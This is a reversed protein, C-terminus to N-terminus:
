PTHIWFQGENLCYQLYKMEKVQEFSPAKNGLSLVEARLKNFVDPRRALIYWLHALLSATTDRGALLINLLEDQIKKESYNEKALSELFVYRAGPEAKEGHAAYKKNQEVTKRVYNQVYEHVYKIGKTYEPDPKIRALMGLRAITGAKGTVYQFADGFQIGRTSAEGEGLM